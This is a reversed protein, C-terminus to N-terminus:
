LTLEAALEAEPGATADEATGSVTEFETLVALAVLPKQFRLVPAERTAADAVGAVRTWGAALVAETALFLHTV